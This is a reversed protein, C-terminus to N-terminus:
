RTITTQIFSETSRPGSVRVTVRYYIVSGATFKTAGAKKSGGTAPSQSFCKGAIDTVPTPGTCLREMVYRVAYQSPLATSSVTAVNDWDIGAPLGRADEALRVPYYNCRAANSCTSADGLSNQEWATAIINPLAAIAAEVGIDAVQLSAQKFALNGSIVNTTDVSRILAVAGIVMVVLM